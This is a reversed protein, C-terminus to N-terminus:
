DKFEAITDGENPHCPRWITMGCCRCVLHSGNCRNLLTMFNHGVLLCKITTFPSLQM